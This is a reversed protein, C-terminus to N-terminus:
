TGANPAITEGRRFGSVLYDFGQWADWVPRGFFDPYRMAGTIAIAVAFLVLVACVARQYRGARRMAEVTGLSLWPLFAVWYRPGYCFGPGFGVSSVGLLYLFLPVAMTRAMRSDDSPTYFARACAVFGFATWPAYVLLGHVPDVLTNVFQSLALFRRNLWFDHGLIALAPLGLVLAIKIADKWRKERVEEALFGIGVLAFPPKMLAGAAAALAALIPRDSILAWLGLIIALGISTEAFYARSYALWPSATFLISAALLAWGRGMGVRRGVFYTAVVGLWAILMLIFGVDPEVENARPQMPAVALAMLLPFGAPHVPIEYVDPSPAFEPGPNRHWQGDKLMGMARHGTRRNVVITHRDLEIGRSMVGAELGGQDVDDYVTQVRLDHKLLLSNIMVLYHPEDGSSARPEVVFFGHGPLYEIRTVLWTALLALCLLAAVGASKRMKRDKFFSEQANGDYRWDLWTRAAMTFLMAAVVRANLVDRLLSEDRPPKALRAGVLAAREAKSQEVVVFHTIDYQRSGNSPAGSIRSLTLNRFFARGAPTARVGCRIQVAENPNGVKFYVEMPAWNGNSQVAIATADAGRIKLAAETGSNETKVEARLYYWGPQPLTATQSWYINRFHEKLTAIELTPPAGPAHSWKFSEPPAGPTMTWHEPIDGSGASLDGNLLLYPEAAFCSVAIFLSFSVFLLAVYIAGIVGFRTMQRL